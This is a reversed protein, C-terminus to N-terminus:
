FSEVQFVVLYANDPCALCPICITKADLIQNFQINQLVILGNQELCLMNLVDVIYAVFYKSFKFSFPEMSKFFLAHEILSEPSAILTPRLCLSRFMVNVHMLSPSKAFVADLLLVSPINLIM